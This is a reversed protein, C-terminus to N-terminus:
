VQQSLQQQVQLSTLRASEAALDADVIAGLGEATADKVETLFTSQLDMARVEKGLEALAKNVTEQLTSFSGNIVSIAEDADGITEAALTEIDSLSDTQATLQLTDGSLNAITEVNAAGSAFMNIGNFKANNLFNAAQSMLGDFDDKLITRQTSDISGNALDTLKARVDTLLNSVGTLGALAVKGVGMTGSLGQQVSGTAKLEGRIGQAIAFNSADDLAGSVKLGTSIRNQVTNLNNNISNMNRLAVMAGSNTLVSNNVAM